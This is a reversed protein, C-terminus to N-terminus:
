NRLWDIRNNICNLIYSFTHRHDLLHNELQKKEIM